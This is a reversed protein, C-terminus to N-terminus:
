RTRKTTRWRHPHPPDKRGAESAGTVPHGNWSAFTSLHPEPPRCDVVAATANDTTGSRLAAESLRAALATPTGGQRLIGALQETTLQRYVGDSVLALWDPAEIVVTGIHRADTTRLSNTLVHEWHAAVTATHERLAHAVTQDSTLLTLTTGRMSYARCDGVWAVSWDRDSGSEPGVALVMAADGLSSASRLVDRTGEIALAPGDGLAAMRVAHAAALSAAWAADTSDGVGDAVAVALQGTRANRYYAAADANYRRPGQETWSACDGTRDVRPASLM